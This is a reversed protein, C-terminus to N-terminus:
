KLGIIHKMNKLHKYMECVIRDEILLQTIKPLINKKNNMLFFFFSLHYSISKFKTM